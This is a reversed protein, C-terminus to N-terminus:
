YTLLLRREVKKTSIANCDGAGAAGGIKEWGINYGRSTISTTVGTTTTGVFTFTKVVDVAACAVGGINVNFHSTITNQNPVSDVTGSPTPFGIDNKACKMVGSMPTPVSTFDPASTTSSFMSTNSDYFHACEMGTDAAYFAYASERASTSLLFEKRSVSLISLSVALVISTVLIAFLLTYGKNNSYM